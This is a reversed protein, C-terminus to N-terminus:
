KAIYTRNLMTHNHDEPGWDGDPHYAIIRLESEETCFRHMLHEPLYFSEGALLKQEHKTGRADTWEAIGSGSIVTGFRISPHTHWSQKIGAPFYLLNLSGDGRRSPYVLLSDSCGDIYSLRGRQEPRVMTFPTNYGHRTVTWVKSFPHVHINTNTPVAFVTGPGISATLVEDPHVGAREDVFSVRGAYIYGYISSGNNKKIIYRGDDATVMMESLCPYMTEIASFQRGFQM